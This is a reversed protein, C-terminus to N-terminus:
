TFLLVFSCHPSQTIYLQVDGSEMFLDLLTMMLQFTTSIYSINRWPNQEPSPLKTKKSPHEVIDNSEDDDGKDIAIASEEPLPLGM